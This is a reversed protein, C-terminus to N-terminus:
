NKVLTTDGTSIPLSGSKIEKQQEVLKSGIKPPWMSIERGQVVAFVFTLTFIVFSITVVTAALPNNSLWQFFESM